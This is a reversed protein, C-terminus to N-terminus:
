VQSYLFNTIPHWPGPKWNWQSHFHAAIADLPCSALMALGGGPILCFKM